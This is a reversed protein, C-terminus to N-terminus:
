ISALRFNSRKVARDIEKLAADINNMPVCAAAGLFKDPYKDVTEALEDNAIRALEAADEPSVMVDLPPNAVTLIQLVGPYREMLRLRMNIDTCARSKVEMSDLFQPHIKGFAALYKETLIHAYIDIKM